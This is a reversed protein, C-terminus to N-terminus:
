LGLLKMTSNVKDIAAQKKVTIDTLEAKVKAIDIEEEKESTDVYRPINLNYGNKIIEEITAVRAYREVDVRNVYTQIIKDIHADTIENQAKGQIYEQSADIFIVDGSNGNRKSKLVLIVVPIPTSYLIPLGSM